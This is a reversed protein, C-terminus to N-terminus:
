PKLSQIQFDTAWYLTGDSALALGSLGPSAPTALTKSTGGAV